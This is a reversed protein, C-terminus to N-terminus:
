VRIMCCAKSSSSVETVRECRPDEVWVDIAGFGDGGECGAVIGGRERKRGDCLRREGERGVRVAREVARCERVREVLGDDEVVMVDAEVCVDSEV